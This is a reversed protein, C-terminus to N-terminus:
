NKAEDQAKKLARLREVNSLEKLEKEKIYTLTNLLKSKWNIIKNDYGDRWDNEIWSDYKFKLSNLEINPKKSIAYEKFLDFKPISKNKKKEKKVNKNTTPRQDTAPRDSTVENTVVQYNNYNVLQIISGKSDSKITVENTSKLKSLSTRVNRRSLNTQKALIDQGTMVQGKKILVGKYRKEKHNAMILLHMFLKFTNVDDYWEWELIKRHIKVWGNNM